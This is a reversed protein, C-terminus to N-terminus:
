DVFHERAGVYYDNLELRANEAADKRSIGNKLDIAMVAKKLAEEPAACQTRAFAEFNDLAVKQAKADTAAKRLCDVFASRPATAALDIPVAMSAVFAVIMMEPGRRRLQTVLALM